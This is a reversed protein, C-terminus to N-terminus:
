TGTPLEIYIHDSDTTVRYTFLNRRAPGELVNGETDYRSGHCPCALRNGAPNVTCQKHTCELLVARYSDEKAKRLYIPSASRPNRLLVFSEGERFVKKGVRLVSEEVEADVYRYTACGELIPFMGGCVAGFSIWKIFEKRDVM